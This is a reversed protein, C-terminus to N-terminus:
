FATDDYSTVSTIASQIDSKTAIEEGKYTTTNTFAVPANFEAKTTNVKVGSNFEAAATNVKMGGNFEAAGNHTVSGEFSLTSHFLKDVFRSLNDLTIWSM